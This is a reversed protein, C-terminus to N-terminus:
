EFRLDFACSFSEGPLLRLIGQKRTLDQDTEGSDAIGYWPELCVFEQCGKKSWIGFYPWNPCSLSIKRSSKSSCLWIRQIQGREFVLADQDFLTDTLYLKNNTLDLPKTQGDRLGDRLASLSYSSGEFELYYDEFREGEELPCRFGPHAGISFFLTKKDPNEVEYRTQLVDGELFYGIRLAFDFPFNTKTKENSRLEFLCSASTNEILSFECDRAFGHQSLSYPQGEYRFCNDKLKGVIPFLVPAHRAWVGADAQWLYELGARSRVSSMEAGRHLISVSLADSHLITM